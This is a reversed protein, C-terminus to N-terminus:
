VPQLTHHHRLDCGTCHSVASLVINVTLRSRTTATGVGQFIKKSGTETNKVGVEANMYYKVSRSWRNGKVTLLPKIVGLLPKM